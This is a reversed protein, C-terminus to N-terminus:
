NSLYNKTQKFLIELASHNTAGGGQALGADGGGRGGFPALHNQLLEHANLGTDQGCAAVMSLKAGDYSALVAVMDPNNRLKNALSRLEAAPKNEFLATVLRLSGVAEAAASLKEAEVGLVVGRLSDLEHQAQKLQEQLKEVGAVADELSSNLLGATGQAVSQMQQFHELAQQGAVFHVRVKQNVRETKVIKLMGVMGTSPCHTGGCPTYDFGDVEVVRISGSVKPQKRVPLNAIETETVNYTKVARNEFLIGNAFAEAHRLIEPTTEGVELDITSPTEGNINASLSDIDAVELFSASLIHQATHHQMARIRRERDIRAPYEGPELTKDVVHIIEGDDKYVDLIRAEGISGTDHEQGGSTPYFYTRPMVLGFRGGELPRSETVRATFEFTLPDDFYLQDTM